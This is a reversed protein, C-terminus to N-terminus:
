LATIVHTYIPNIFPPNSIKHHSYKHTAIEGQPPNPPTGGLFNLFIVHELLSELSVEVGWKVYAHILDPTGGGGGGSREEGFYSLLIAASTFM